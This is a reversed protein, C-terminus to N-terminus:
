KRNKAARRLVATPQVTGLAFQTTQCAPAQLTLTDPIQVFQPRLRRHPEHADVRTLATHVPLHRGGICTTSEAQDMRFTTHRFM